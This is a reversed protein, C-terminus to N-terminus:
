QNKRNGKQKKKCAEICEHKYKEYNRVRERRSNEAIIPNSTNWEKWTKCGCKRFSQSSAGSSLLLTLVILLSNKM